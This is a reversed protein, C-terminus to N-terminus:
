STTFALATEPVNNPFQDTDWGSQLRQPQRRGSGFMGLAMATAIEHEFSHGALDAHGIEINVKM